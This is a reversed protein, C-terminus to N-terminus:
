IKYYYEGYGFPDILQTRSGAWVPEKHISQLFADQTKSNGTFVLDIRLRETTFYQDFSPSQALAPTCFLVIFLLLATKKM